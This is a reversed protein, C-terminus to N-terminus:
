GEIRMGLKDVLARFTEYQELIFTNAEEPNMLQIVSGRAEMTERFTADDTAAQMWTGWKAAVEDPLDDPGAIGTWGVLQQLAPKGLDVSTPADFGVVPEATTVMLPVLQGNAVFGALASSNTCLFTVTGNLVATAAGGGGKQPIHTVKELPNEVGFEDLVMVAALHLLTGVGSSSYSLSGENAKAVLDDMTKIGSAPTVACAVPNIEYVTVFRFDDLTYPLTAKMAPSVSHSGVRAFLMKYGDSQANQITVSGTAGGAGTINAMVLPKGVANGLPASISRASIDTAGGAGYPIVMTIPREPYEAAAVTASLCISTAGMLALKMLRM